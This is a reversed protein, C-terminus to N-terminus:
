QLGRMTKKFIGWDDKFTSRVKRNEEFELENKLSALDTDKKVQDLFEKDKPLDEKKVKRIERQEAEYYQNIQLDYKLFIRLYESDLVENTDLDVDTKIGYLSGFSGLLRKNHTSSYAELLDENKLDQFKLSYKFIEFLNTMLGEETSTDIKNISHMYSKNDTFRAWDEMIGLHQSTTSGDKQKYNYIGKIEHDSCCLLNIHNNWGNKSKTVEFSYFLGNFQSFFSERGKGRKNDKIAMRLTKLGDKARNFVTTFSETKNHKVPLVIYYWHKDKLAPNEQIYKYVKNRQKSARRRACAPCLKDKKCFNSYMKTKDVRFYNRFELWSGCANINEITSSKLHKDIKQEDPILEVYKLFKRTRNKSFLFQETNKNIFDVTSTTINFQSDLNFNTNQLNKKNYNMKYNM